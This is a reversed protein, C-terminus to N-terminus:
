NKRERTPNSPTDTASSCELRTVSLELRGHRNISASSPILGVLVGRDAGLHPANEVNAVVGHVLANHLSGSARGKIIRGFRLGGSRTIFEVKVGAATSPMSGSASYGLGATPHTIYPRKNQPLDLYAQALQRARDSDTDNLGYQSRLSGFDSRKSSVLKLYKNFAKEHLGTIWPGNEIGSQRNWQPHLHELISKSRRNHRESLWYVSGQAQASDSRPLRLALGFERMRRIFRAKESAFTFPTQREQSDIETVIIHADKVPPLPRKLGWDGRRHASNFSTILQHQPFPQQHRTYFSPADSTIKPISALRSSRFGENFSQHKSRVSTSLPTAKLVADAFQHWNASAPRPSM